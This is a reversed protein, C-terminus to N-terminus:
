ARKDPNEGPPASEDADREPSVVMTGGLLDGPHRRNPDIIVLAVLPPVLTKVLNRVASQWFRVKEGRTSAVRCGAVAKGITRGWIAEAITGHLLYIGTTLLVPWSDAGSLLLLQSADIAEAVGVNFVAASLGGALVVDIFGALARRPLDALRTGTPPTAQAPTEPKLLFLLVGLMVASLLFGVMRLDAPTLPPGFRVPGEFLVRGTVGSVVALSLRGPSEGDTWFVAVNDGLRAVAPEAGFTEIDALDHIREGRVLRLTVGSGTREPLVIGTPVAIVAPDLADVHLPERRWDGELSDLRWMAAGTEDRGLVALSAGMARVLGAEAGGPGVVSLWENRALVRLQSGGGEHVLAALGLATDAADILRGTTVLPPEAAYRDAPHFHVASVGGPASRSVSRLSRVPHQLSGGAESPKYILILRDGFGTMVVPPEVLTHGRMTDVAGVTASAGIHHVQGVRVSEGNRAPSTPVDIPGVFWAHDSTGAAIPKWGSDQGAARVDGAGWAAICAALAVGVVAIKCAPVIM